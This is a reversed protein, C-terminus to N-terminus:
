GEGKSPNEFADGLSFLFFELQDSSVGPIERAVSAITRLYLPYDRAANHAALHRLPHLEMWDGHSLVRLIRSDLILAPNGEFTKEFFYALKTITSIGLGGLSNLNGFYATWNTDLSARLSIERANSLFDLHRNGRMGRPYGWLLIQLCKRHADEQGRISRRSIGIQEGQGFIRNLESTLGAQAFPVEWSSRRVRITQLQVPFHPILLSFPKGRLHM